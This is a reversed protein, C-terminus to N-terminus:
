YAACPGCCPLIISVSHYAMARVSPSFTSAFLIPCVRSCCIYVAAPLASCGITKERTLIAPFSAARLLSTGRRACMTGALRLNDAVLCLMRWTNFTGVDPPM